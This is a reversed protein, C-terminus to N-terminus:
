VPSHRDAATARALRVATIAAALAVTLEAVESFKAVRAPPSPWVLRVATFAAAMAFWPVVFSPPLLASRLTWGRRAAVLRAAPRSLAGALSIALIGLNSLALGPGVNHLSVDGQDNAREVAAVSVGFLRQGWALEEGVVVVFLACWLAAFGAAAVNERRLTVAVALCGAGAVAFAGVQLWEFVRDEAVLHYFGRTWWIGAAAVALWVLAPAIALATARRGAITV